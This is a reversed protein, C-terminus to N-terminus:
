ERQDRYILGLIFEKIRSVDEEQIQYFEIGTDFVTVNEERPHERNFVWIVRGKCVIPKEAIKYLTVQVIPCAKIDKELLVRIGGASINETYATIVEKGSTDQLSIECPFEVRVFKRRESTDWSM